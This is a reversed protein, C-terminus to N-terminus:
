RDEPGSPPNVFGPPEPLDDNGLTEIHEHLEAAVAVRDQIARLAPVYLSSANQFVPLFRFVNSHIPNSHTLVHSWVVGLRFFIIGWTGVKPQSAQRRLKNTGRL